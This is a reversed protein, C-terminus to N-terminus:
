KSRRIKIKTLGSLYIRFVNQIKLCVIFYCQRSGLDLQLSSPREDKLSKIANFYKAARKMNLDDILRNQTQERLNDITGSLIIVMNWGYDCAMAMLAAMNATKGSQVDGVIM